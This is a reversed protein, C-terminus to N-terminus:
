HVPVLDHGRCNGCEGSLVRFRPALVHAGCMCCSFRVTPPVRSTRAEGVGPEAAPGDHTVACAIPTLERM